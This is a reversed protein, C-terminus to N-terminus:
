DVVCAIGDIKRFVSRSLCRKLEMRDALTISVGEYRPSHLLRGSSRRVFRHNWERVAEDFQAIEHSKIESTRYITFYFTSILTRGNPLKTRLPGVKHQTSGPYSVYCHPDPTSRLTSAYGPMVQLERVELPIPIEISWISSGGSGCGKVVGMRGSVRGIGDSGVECKFSRMDPGTCIGPGPAEVLCEAVRQRNVIRREIAVSVVRANQYEVVGDHPSTLLPRLQYSWDCAFVQKVLSFFLGGLCFFLTWRNM